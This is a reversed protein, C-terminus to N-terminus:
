KGAIAEYIGRRFHWLISVIFGLLAFFIFKPLIASLLNEKVLALETFPQLITIPEGYLELDRELGQKSRKLDLLISHYLKFDKENLVVMQTNSTRQTKPVEFYQINQLSDLKQVEENIYDIQELAQKIRLNNNTIIFPNKSVYDVVSTKLTTYVDMKWLEIKIYLVAPLRVITSDLPDYTNEFDIYDVNRDENIDIGYYAGISKIKDVDDVNINLRQSIADYNRNSLLEQLQNVFDIVYINSIGNSRITAQSSYYNPVGIYLIYGLVAGFLAFTGIWVSKRIIFILLNKLANLLWIVGNKFGEWMRTFLEILDIEDNSGLPKQETNEM